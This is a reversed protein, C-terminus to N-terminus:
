WKQRRRLELVFSKGRERGRKPTWASALVQTRKTPIEGVVGGTGKKLSTRKKQLTVMPSQNQEKGKQPTITLSM